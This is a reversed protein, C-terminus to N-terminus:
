GGGRPTEEAPESASLASRWTSSQSPVLFRVDPDPLGVGAAKLASVVSARVASATDLCDSRRSDTWFRVELILDDQDLERIRVSVPPEALM